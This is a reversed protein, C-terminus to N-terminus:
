QLASRGGKLICTCTSPGRDKSRRHPRPEGQPGGEVGRAQLARSSPYSLS